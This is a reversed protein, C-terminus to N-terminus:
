EVKLGVAALAAKLRAVGAELAPVRKAQAAITHQPVVFDGYDDRADIEEATLTESM